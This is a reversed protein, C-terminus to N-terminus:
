LFDAPLINKTAAPGGNCRVDEAESRHFVAVPRCKYGMDEADIRSCFPSLPKRTTSVFYSQAKESGYWRAASTCRSSLM